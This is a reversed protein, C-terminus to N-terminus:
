DQFRAPRNQIGAMVAEMQNPSGLLNTQLQRELALGEAEDGHWAQNFLQKAARIADPNRSAIATATSLAEALPDECLRTVLGIRAAEEADIRRGSYTLERAIDIRVLDRLTQSGAMDPIIGWQIEMVSLRADPAAYRIDAGLAIQLGGGFVHGRLAAIVPVPLQKWDYAVRQFRNALQGEAPQLMAKIGEPGIQQAALDNIDLGACFSRGEGSLVVARLGPTGSLQDAAAMLGDFMAQDLANLKDPRWLRVDAVGDAIEIRVRDSLLHSEPM